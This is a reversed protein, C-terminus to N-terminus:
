YGRTSAAWPESMMSFTESSGWMVCRRLPFILLHSFPEACSNDLLAAAANIVVIEMRHIFSCPHCINSKVCLLFLNESLMVGVGWFFHRISFNWSLHLFPSIFLCIGSKERKREKYTRQHKNAANLSAFIAHYKRDICVCFANNLSRLWSGFLCETDFSIWRSELKKAEM